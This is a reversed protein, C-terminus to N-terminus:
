SSKRRERKEKKRKMGRGGHERVECKGGEEERTAQSADVSGLDGEREDVGVALDTVEGREAESNIISANKQLPRSTKVDTGVCLEDIREEVGAGCIDDHGVSTVWPTRRRIDISVLVDGNAALV